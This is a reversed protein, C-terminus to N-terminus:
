RSDRQAYIGISSKRIPHNPDIRLISNAARAARDKRGMAWWAGALLEWAELNKPDSRVLEKCRNVVKAYRGGKLDDRAQAIMESAINPKIAQVNVVSEVGSFLAVAGLLTLLAAMRRGQFLVVHDSFVRQRMFENLAFLLKARYIFLWALFLALLGLLILLISM